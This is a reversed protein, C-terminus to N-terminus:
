AIASYGHTYFQEFLEKGKEGAKRCYHRMAQLLGLKHLYRAYELFVTEVLQSSENNSKLLGYEICAEAFVAARDYYKM